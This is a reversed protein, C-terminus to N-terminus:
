HQVHTTRCSRILCGLGQPQAIVIRRSTCRGPHSQFGRSCARLRGLCLRCQKLWDFFKDLPVEFLSRQRALGIADGEWYRRLWKKLNKWSEVGICRVSLSDQPVRPWVWHYPQPRLKPDHIWVFFHNQHYYIDGGEKRKQRCPRLLGSQTHSKRELEISANDSPPFLVLVKRDIKIRIEAPINLFTAM